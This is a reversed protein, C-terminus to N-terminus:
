VPCGSRRAKNISFRSRCSRRARLQHSHESLSVTPSPSRPSLGATAASRSVSRHYRTARFLQTAQFSVVPSYRIAPFLRIARSLLTARSLTGIDFGGIVFNITTEGFSFPVTFSAAGTLDTFVPNGPIFSITLDYEVFIPETPIARAPPSYAVEAVVLGLAFVIIGITRSHMIRGGIESGPDPMRWPVVRDALTGVVLM